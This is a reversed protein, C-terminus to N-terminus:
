SGAPLAPLVGALRLMWIGLVIAVVTTTAWSPWRIVRRRALAIPGAVLIAVTLALVLPTAPAHSLAGHLDGDGVALLGHTMGCFPCPIGTAARLPCLILSTDTPTGVGSWGMLLAGASCAALGTAIALPVGRAAHSGRILSPM